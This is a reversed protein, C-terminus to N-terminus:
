RYKGYEVFHYLKTSDKFTDPHVKMSFVHRDFTVDIVDETINEYYVDLIINPSKYMFVNYDENKQIVVNYYVSNMDEIANDFNDDPSIYLKTMDSPSFFIHTEFEPYTFADDYRTCSISCLCTITLLILLKKM